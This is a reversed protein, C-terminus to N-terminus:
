PKTIIISSSELRLILIFEVKSASKDLEVQRIELLRFLIMQLFVLRYPVDCWMPGNHQAMKPNVGHSWPPGNVRPPYLRHMYNMLYSHSTNYSIYQTVDGHQSLSRNERGSITKQVIGIEQIKRNWRFHTLPSTKLRDTMWWRRIFKPEGCGVCFKSFKFSLNKFAKFKPFHEIEEVPFLNSRLFSKLIVKLYSFRILSEGFHLSDSFDKWFVRSM